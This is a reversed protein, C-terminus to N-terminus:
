TWGVHFIIVFPIKKTTALTDDPSQIAEMTRPKNHNTNKTYLQLSSHKHTTLTHHYCKLEIATFSLKPKSYPNLHPSLNYVYCDLDFNTLSGVANPQERM